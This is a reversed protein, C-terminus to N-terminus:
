AMVSFARRTLSIASMPLRDVILGRGERMADIAPIVLLHRGLSVGQFDSLWVM